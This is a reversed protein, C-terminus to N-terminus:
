PDLVNNPDPHVYGDRYPRRLLATAEEDGIITMKKPDYKLPRGGLDMSM